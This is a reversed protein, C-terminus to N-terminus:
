PQRTQTESATRIAALGEEFQRGLQGELDAVLSYARALFGKQGRIGWHVRTGAQTPDFTFVIDGELTLPRSWELRIEVRRPADVASVTTSGTGVQGRGSWRCVHGVTAPAGEFEKKMQLDVRAWPSWREWQQFDAVLEFLVGPPAAIVAEREVEFTGGMRKM